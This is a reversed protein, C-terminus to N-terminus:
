RRVAVVITVEAQTGPAASVTVARRGDQVIRDIGWGEPLGIVHLTREGFMGELQFRGDENVEAQDRWVVDVDQGGRTWAAAVRVFSFDRRTGDDAVIQGTITATPAMTLQVEVDESAVDVLAWAAEFGTATGARAWMAYTGPKLGTLTFRGDSELPVAQDAAGPALLHADIRQHSERAVVHGVISALRNRTLPITINSVVEGRTIRVAVAQDRSGGPFYTPQFEPEGPVLLGSRPDRQPELRAELLYLGDNLGRLAFEGSPTTGRATTVPAIPAAQGSPELMTATVRARAIPEGEPTTVRGRIATRAIVIIVDVREGPTLRIPDVERRPAAAIREIEWGAPLGIVRMTRDGFLGNIEFTGDRGVDAQDRTVPDVDKGADTWAAAIRFGEVPLPSGDVTMVRGSITATPSMPLQLSRLDTFGDITEWAAEFGEATKARVWVTYRGPKLGAALFMGDADVVLKRTSTGAVVFGEIRGDSGTRIVQGSISTLESRMLPFDIGSIVDESRVSIAVAESPSGGPYSTPQFELSPVERSAAKPPPMATVHYFGEPLGELVFEGTPSSRSTGGNGPLLPLLRFGDPGVRVSSISADEVPKGEPDTVRGRITAGKVLQFNIGAVSRGAAVTILGEPGILSAMTPEAVGHLQIVYGPRTARVQYSGAAIKPFAYHGNGDTTTKTESRRGYDRLIVIAGELPQETRRDTIQGSLSGTGAVPTPQGAPPSTALRDYGRFIITVRDLPRECRHDTVRGPLTSSGLSVSLPQAALGVAVVVFAATTFRVQPKRTM